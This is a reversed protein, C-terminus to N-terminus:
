WKFIFDRQCFAQLNRKFSIPNKAVIQVKGVTPLSPYSLERGLLIVRTFLFLRQECPYSVLLFVLSYTVLAVSFIWTKKISMIFRGLFTESQITARSIPPHDSKPPFDSQSPYRGLRSPCQTQIHSRSWNSLGRQSTKSLYTNKHTNM